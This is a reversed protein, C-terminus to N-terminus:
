KSKNKLKRLNEVVGKPPNSIDGNKIASVTGPSRNIARGIRDQTFKKDLDRLLRRAEGGTGKGAQFKPM